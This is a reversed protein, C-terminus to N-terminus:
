SPDAKPSKTLSEPIQIVQGSRDVCAITTSGEALLTQGRKLLYAHDFRVHTQKVIRTILTLEEDYRAPARFRIEAKVVVFFVGQRELDAYNVGQSRLMEVRGLEFYQLFRSHHLYGMADVEPYRVRITITHELM